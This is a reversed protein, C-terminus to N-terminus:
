TSGNLTQDKSERTKAKECHAVLPIAVSHHCMLSKIDEPICGSLDSHEPRVVSMVYDISSLTIEM